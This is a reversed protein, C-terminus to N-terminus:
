GGDVASGGKVLAGGPVKPGIKEHFRALACGPYRLYFRMRALWRKFRQAPQEYWESYERVLRKEIECLEENTFNEHIYPTGSSAVYEKFILDFDIRDHYIEFSPSGILPNFLATRVMDPHAERLMSATLDFDEMTEGPTGVILFVKTWLNARRSAKLTEIIKERTFMKKLTKLSRPSGTEVGFYIRRMGARRMAMMMDFDIRDVRTECCWNLKINRAILSDCFEFVRKKNCTFLEDIFLIAGPQYDGQVQELENCVNDVSRSRFKRGYVEKQCFVCKYPCGRSTYVYLLREKNKSFYRDMPLLHRAPFPLPDLDVTFPREPTLCKEGSDEYFLLGPIEKLKEKDDLVPLVEQITIEAERVFVLDFLGTELTSQPDVTAHPGGIWVTKGQERAYRALDFGRQVFPTMVSIGVVDAEAIGAKIEESSFTREDMCKVPIGARELIAGLYLVGLPQSIFEDDLGPM